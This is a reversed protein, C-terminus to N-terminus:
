CDIAEISEDPLYTFNCDRYKELAEIMDQSYKEAFRRKVNHIVANGEAEFINKIVEAYLPANLALHMEYVATRLEFLDRM